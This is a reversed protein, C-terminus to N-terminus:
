SLPAYMWKPAAHASASAPSFALHPGQRSCPHPEDLVGFAGDRLLPVPGKLM